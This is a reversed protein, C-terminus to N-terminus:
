TIRASREAGRRKLRGKPDNEGAGPPAEEDGDEEPQPLMKRFTEAEFNTWGKERKLFDLVKEIAVRTVRGLPAEPTEDLGLMGKVSNWESPVILSGAKTAFIRPHHHRGGDFAMGTIKGDKGRQEFCHQTRM